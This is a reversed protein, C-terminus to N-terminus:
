FLFGSHLPAGGTSDSYLAFNFDHVGVVPAGSADTQMGQYSILQPVQASVLSTLILVYFLVIFNKM